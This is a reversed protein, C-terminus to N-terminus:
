LEAGPRNSVYDEVSNASGGQRHAGLGPRARNRPSARERRSWKVNGMTANQVFGNRQVTKVRKFSDNNKSGARAM